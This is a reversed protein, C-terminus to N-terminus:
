PRRRASVELRVYDVTRDPLRRAVARIGDPDTGRLMITALYDLFTEADPLV